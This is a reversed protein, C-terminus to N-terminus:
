VSICCLYSTCGPVTNTPCQIADANPKLGSYLTANRCDGWYGVSSACTPVYCCTRTDCVDNICAVNSPNTATIYRFGKPCCYTACTVNSTSYVSHILILFLLTFLSKM